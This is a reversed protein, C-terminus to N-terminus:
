ELHDDDYSPDYSFLYLNKVDADIASNVTDIYCSHGWGRKKLYDEPTYQADHILMDVGDMFEIGRLRNEEQMQVLLHQEDEDFDGKREEITQHSFWLENDPAYM